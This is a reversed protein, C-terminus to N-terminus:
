SREPLIANTFKVPLVPFDSCLNHLPFRHAPLIQLSFNAIILYSGASKKCLIFLLSYLIITTSRPATRREFINLKNHASLIRHFMFSIQSPVISAM